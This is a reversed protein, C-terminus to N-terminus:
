MKFVSCLPFDARVMMKPRETPDPSSSPSQRGATKRTGTCLKKQIQTLNELRLPTFFESYLYLDPQLVQFLVSSHKSYFCVATMLMILRSLHSWLSIFLMMFSYFHRSIIKRKCLCGMLVNLVLKKESPLNDHHWNKLKVSCHSTEIRCREVPHM